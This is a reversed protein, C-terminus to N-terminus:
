PCRFKQQFIKETSLCRHSVSTYLYPHNLLYNDCMYKWERKVYWLMTKLKLSVDAVITM